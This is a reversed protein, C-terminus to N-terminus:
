LNKVYDTLSLSPKGLDKWTQESEFQEPYKNLAQCIRAAYNMRQVFLGLYKLLALPAKMTKAPKSYNTLFIKAVDNWDYANTGQIAYDQNDNGAIEFAKVVQKGYDEAAIFWMKAVSGNIMMLKNGRLMQQDLCEMFTSPSFISYPIGSSRIASVAKHKIAFCWWNFGNMGQYNKVLSSLYAIRKIGTEKATTIVNAIGEREPQPDKKASSQDVSLNLYVIDQGTFAKTLSTKDFVDGQVVNVAPFLQQVKNVNRALLTVDFGAKILEKAVPSGLMGSAGIFLIKM